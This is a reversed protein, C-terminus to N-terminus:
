DSLLNIVIMAKTLALAILSAGMSNKVMAWINQFGTRLILFEIVSSDIWYFTFPTDSVM